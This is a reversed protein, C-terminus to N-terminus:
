LVPASLDFAALLRGKNLFGRLGQRIKIKGIARCANFGGGTKVGDEFTM